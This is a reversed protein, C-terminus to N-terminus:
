GFRLPGADVAARIAGRDDSWIYEMWWTAGAAALEAIWGRDRDVSGTIAGRPAGGLAIELPEESSRLRGLDRRLSRLEDVTLCWQGDPGKVKGGVFGDWRAARRIPGPNPWNGGVWIPIRPQQVPAPLFRVGDVQFHRGRHSFSEGSWLGVLIELAEDLREARRRENRVESVRSFGADGSDGLGVGLVFRGGSLRDISVTERAVKWPRRRSLATVTTGLLARHTRPGNRHACGM